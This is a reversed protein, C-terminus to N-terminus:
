NRNKKMDKEDGSIAYFLIGILIFMGMIAVSMAMNAVM